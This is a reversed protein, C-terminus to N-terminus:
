EQSNGANGSDYHKIVVKGQAVFRLDNIRGTYHQTGDAYQVLVNEPDWFYPQKEEASQTATRATEGGIRVEEREPELVVSTTDGNHYSASVPRKTLWWTPGTHAVIMGIVNDHTNGEIMVQAPEEFYIIERDGLQGTHETESNQYDLALLREREKEFKELSFGQAAQGTTYRNRAPNQLLAPM